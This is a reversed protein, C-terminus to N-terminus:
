MSGKEKCRQIFLMINREEEEKNQTDRGLRDCLGLLAVEQLDTRQKMGKLDAYPQGKVVFLIQMHYRVLGCVKEIFTQDEMFYSLFDRALKEGEQDHNYSTIRGKRMKTVSPKGIDHLLAAWMFVRPDQSRKKVKAAVDIVQMTHIWVNGEPHYIPSQETSGMDYLLQFPYEQFLGKEYMKNLYVSPNEDETLHTQMELFIDRQNMGM